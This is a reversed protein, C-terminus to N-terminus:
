GDLSTGEPQEVLEVLIGGTAAPHIFAVRTGHAGPRPVEDIMRVGESVLRAVIADIDGVRFALHHLGPGRKALFRAVPSDSSTPALLEMRGGTYPVFVVTVQDQAVWEPPEGGLGLPAWARLGAELDTVAIGIHDLTM